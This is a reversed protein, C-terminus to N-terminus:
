PRLGQHAPLDSWPTTGRGANRLGEVILGGVAFNWAREGPMAKFFDLRTKQNRM